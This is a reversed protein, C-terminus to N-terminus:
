GGGKKRGRGEQGCLLKKKASCKKILRSKWSAEQEFADWQGGDERIGICAGM